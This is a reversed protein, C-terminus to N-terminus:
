KYMNLINVIDKVQEKTSNLDKSNDIIFNVFEKKLDLDMQSKIRNLAENNTIVDRKTLRSLQVERSVWVLINYDMSDQLNNEILTPADLIVVREGKKNYEEFKNFIEKKIFPMIIEEYKIRERPYKFIYNGFEKRLFTGRYDFFGEGFHKRVSELIEPYVELVERAIIDADIITFGQEKLLNSVTSKGSAIGGTLGIKLM